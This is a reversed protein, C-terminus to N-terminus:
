IQRTSTGMVLKPALMAERPALTEGPEMELRDFLWETSLRALDEVPQSVATVQPTILESNPIVDVSTLSVDGPCDLGLTRLALLTGVATDNNATVLATPPTPGRMLRIVAQYSTDRDYDGDAILAPDVSIGAERLTQTYGELRKQASWLRSRGKIHGIRRHGLEILHRTLMSTALANDLGVHDCDLGDIKQDYAVILAGTDSIRRAYDEGGRSPALVIGRVRLAKFRNLLATEREGDDASLGALAFHDRELAVAQVCSLFAGNHPNRMDSAIVGILNNRGTKLSQAAM